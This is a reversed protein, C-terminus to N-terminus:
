IKSATNSPKGAVKNDVSTNDGLSTIKGFSPLSTVSVGKGNNSITNGTIYVVANGTAGPVGRGSLVGTTNQDIVNDSATMVCNGTSQTVCALGQANGNSNTGDVTVDSYDAALVGAAGNGDITSDKVTVTALATSSGGTAGVGNQGNRQITSHEIVVRGGATPAVHVGDGTFGEIVSDEIYLAKGSIFNIGHQGFGFGELDVNRLVVVDNAAAAIVIGDLGSVTTQLVIQNAGGDVDIGGNITFPTPQNSPNGYSGPDIASVTGDPQATKSYAGQLTKCPATRSCPNADDGFGSLWAIRDAGDGNDSAVARSAALRVLGIPVLVLVAMLITARRARKAKM